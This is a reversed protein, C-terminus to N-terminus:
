YETLSADIFNVSVLHSNEKSSGGIPKNRGQGMQEYMCLCLTETGEVSESKKM